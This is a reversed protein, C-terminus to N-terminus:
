PCASLLVRTVTVIAHVPDHSPTLLHSIVLRVVHEAVLDAYAVPLWPYHLQVHEAFVDTAAALVPHGQTTVLPLLDEADSGTFLSKALPDSVALHFVFTLAASIGEVADTCQLRQRVGDLFEETKFLAVAHVVREKNGFQNYVSQRSVGARSAMDAVRFGRVGHAALLEAAAELLTRTLDTM